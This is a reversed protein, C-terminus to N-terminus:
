IEPLEDLSEKDRFVRYRKEPLNINLFIVKPFTKRLWLEPMVPYVTEQVSCEWKTMYARAIAKMKEFNSKGSVFPEKAAQKMAEPAKDKAKSFYACMYTVAMYHNFM